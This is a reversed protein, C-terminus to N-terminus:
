SSGTSFFMTVIATAYIFLDKTFAHPDYGFLSILLLGLLLAELLMELLWVALRKIILM